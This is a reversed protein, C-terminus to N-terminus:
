LVASMLFRVLCLFLLTYACKQKESNPSIGVAKLVKGAREIVPETVLSGASDLAVTLRTRRWHWLLRVMLFVILIDMVVVTLHLLGLFLGAFIGM